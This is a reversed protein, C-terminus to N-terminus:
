LFVEPVQTSTPLSAHVLLQAVTFPEVELGDNAPVAFIVILSVATATLVESVTVFTALVILPSLM